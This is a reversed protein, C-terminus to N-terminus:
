SPPPLADSLPVLVFGKARLTPLWHELASLTVDHPHGIAIAIGHRRAVEQTRELMAAVAAPSQDDDLFVDRSVLPLKLGAALMGAKSDATTRSDLFMLGRQALIRLVVELRHPDATFRSGMHNNIGVYGDFAALDRTLRRTIEEDSLDTTLADPGPDAKGMPQMPVHVILQHGARRAAQTQEELDHAYPLWSTTVGAPLAVARASRARDLGMDDIVIVIRPAAGTILPAPRPAPRPAPLATAVRQRPQAPPPSPVLAEDGVADREAEGATASPDQATHPVPPTLPPATQPVPPAQPLTHPAPPAASVPSVQRPVPAQAGHHVGGFYVGGIALLAVGAALALRGGPTGLRAKLSPASAKGKAKGGEKSGPGRGSQRGTSRGGTSRLRPKAPAPSRPPPNSPM